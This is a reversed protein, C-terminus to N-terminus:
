ATFISAGDRVTEVCRPLVAGPALDPLAPVGSRPDLSWRQVSDSPASVVLHEVEWVAYTAPAGPVLTGAVGDREGGARWAGRTAATFAARPSISQGPTRHATAARVAAWPDLPTVPVDSGIALGVGAAALTALPNLLPGRVPGLRQAYVGDTGGWLEDFVPQLSALVGWGGLLAAQAADVMELHELRHGRSAVAPGGLEAVVRGFAEVVAAVGGDGIVHFGGQVGAQTCARLHAAIADVELYRAGTNHDSHPDDAFPETLWATRSGLSGDVFLDGGLGHAGTEALVARAQEATTVAEGWYGRVQVAHAGALLERFDEVGAIEAGGCEHVCAVGHAAAHDLLARQALGRQDPALAARAAERAVHHAQQSLPGESSWGPADAVGAARHVLATSVLASHVDIRSLYVARGPACEDIEARTPPRNEPWRSDDWGHGWLIGRPDEAARARVLDLCERLSGAGSLDLGLLALGASTAHVHTDVFAPAVFRGGLDVVEAGPHLARGVADEGVWSVVGDTVAMATADPAAPSYVAGGVLLRTSM